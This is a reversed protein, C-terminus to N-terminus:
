GKTIPQVATPEFFFSGTNDNVWVVRGTANEYKDWGSNPDSAFFYDGTDPRFFSIRNTRPQCYKEWVEGVQPLTSVGEGRETHPSTLVGEGGAERPLTRVRKGDDDTDQPSVQRKKTGCREHQPPPNPHAPDPDPHRYTARIFLTPSCNDFRVQLLEFRPCGTKRSVSNKVVERIREVTIGAFDQLQLLEDLVVYGDNTALLGDDNTETTINYRLIRSLNHSITDDNQGRNTQKTQKTQKVTTAAEHRPCAGIAHSGYGEGAQTM